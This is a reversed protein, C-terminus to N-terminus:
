FLKIRIKHFELDRMIRRAISLKRESRSRNNDDVAEDEVLPFFDRRRKDDYWCFSVSEGVVSGWVDIRDSRDTSSSQYIIKM